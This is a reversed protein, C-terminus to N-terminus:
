APGHWERVEGLRVETTATALLRSFGKLITGYTMRRDSGYSGVLASESGHLVAAQEGLEVSARLAFDRRQQTAQEPSTKRSPLTGFTVL